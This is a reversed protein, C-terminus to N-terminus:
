GLIKQFLAITNSSFKRTIKSNSRDENEHKHGKFTMKRGSTNTTESIKCTRDTAASGQSLVTPM